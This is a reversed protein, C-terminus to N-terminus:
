ENNFLGRVKDLVGNDKNSSLQERFEAFEDELKSLREEVTLDECVPMPADYPIIIEGNRYNKIFSEVTSESVKRSNFRIKNRIEPINNGLDYLTIIRQAEVSNIWLKKGLGDERVFCENDSDYNYRM